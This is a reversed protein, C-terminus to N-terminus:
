PLSTGKRPAPADTPPQVSQGSNTVLRSRLTPILTSLEFASIGVSSICRAALAVNCILYLNGFSRTCNVLRTREASLTSGEQMGQEQWIRALTKQGRTM